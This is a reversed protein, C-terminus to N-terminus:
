TNRRHAVLGMGILGLAMLGYTLPGTAADAADRADNSATGTGVAPTSTRTGTTTAPIKMGTFELVAVSGGNNPSPASTTDSGTSHNLVTAQAHVGGAAALALAILAFRAKM